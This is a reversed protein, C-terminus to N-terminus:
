QAPPAEKLPTVAGRHCTFCTVHQQGDTFKGNIDRAMSIMMRAVTKKPNDDSPFNGQVHCYTCQQGLAANFNRMTMQLAEGKTTLIKLNQPNEFPSPGKKKKEEQAFLAVGIILMPCLLRMLRM